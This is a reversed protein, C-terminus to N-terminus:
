QNASLFKNLRTVDVGLSSWKNIFASYPLYYNNVYNNVVFVKKRHYEAYHAPFSDSSIIFRAGFIFCDLEDYSKYNHVKLAREIIEDIGDNVHKIFIPNLGLEICCREIDLLHKLNICKEFVRSSFFIAVDKLSDSVIEANNDFICTEGSETLVSLYGSYINDAKLASVSKSKSFIPKILFERLGYNDFLISEDKNTCNKIIENRLLYFSGVCQSLTSNKLNFIEPYSLISSLVLVGDERKLHNILPFLYSATVLHFKTKDSFQSIAWLAILADGFGKISLIYM